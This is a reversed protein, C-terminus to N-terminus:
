GFCIRSYITSYGQTAGSYLIVFIGKGQSLTRRSWQTGIGYIGVVGGAGEDFRTEYDQYQVVHTPIGLNRTVDFALNHWQVYRFFEDRCPMDQMLGMLEADIWRMRGLQSSADMEQCWKIFGTRNYSHQEKWRPGKKAAATHYELHFRAVINDLPIDCWM